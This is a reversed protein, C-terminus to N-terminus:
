FEHIATLLTFTGLLVVVSWPTLAGFSFSTALEAAYTERQAFIIAGYTLFLAVSLVVFTPTFCWRLRPYWRNLAADPDGFSFRMRFLEGRVVSRSRKREARLRELQQTTREYLSRELLGLATLKRAFGEVTAASVKVGDAVLQEAIQATSRAGDFLRMVRMEVPQFRFYAHTSPDKVVFSQENRFRQEVIALDARLHPASM